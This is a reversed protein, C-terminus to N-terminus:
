DFILGLNSILTDVDGNLKFRGMFYASYLNMQKKLIKIVVDKKASITIQSSYNSPDESQTIRIQGDKVAIFISSNEDTLVLKVCVDLNKIKEVLEMNNLIKERKESLIRLVEESM